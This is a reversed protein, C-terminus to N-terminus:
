KEEKCPHGSGRKRFGCKKCYKPNVPNAIRHDRFRRSLISKKEKKVAIKNGDKDVNPM